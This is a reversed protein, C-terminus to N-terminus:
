ESKLQQVLFHQIVFNGNVQLDSILVFKGQLNHYMVHCKIELNQGVKFDKYALFTAVDPFM